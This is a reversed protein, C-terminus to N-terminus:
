IDTRQGPPRLVLKNDDVLPRLGEAAAAPHYDDIDWQIAHLADGVNDSTVIHERHDGRRQGVDILQYGYVSPVWRLFYHFEGCRAESYGEDTPMVSKTSNETLAKM